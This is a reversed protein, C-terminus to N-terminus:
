FDGDIQWAWATAYFAAGDFDRYGNDPPPNDYTGSDRGNLVVEWCEGRESFTITAIVKDFCSIDAVDFARPGLM